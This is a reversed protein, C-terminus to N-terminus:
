IKGINLTLELESRTVAGERILRPRKGTVDLVTSPKTVSVAGGDIILDIGNTFYTAVEQATRAPPQGAANASTATLGGGCVRVLERVNADDPLRVGITGTGATLEQPLENRAEGILTLPGPWFSECLRDFIESRQSIFRGVENADAILVLIPKTEERGKLERLKQLAAQNFPDVGLGYFTDTRFAVLGGGRIMEAAQDRAPQTDPSIM